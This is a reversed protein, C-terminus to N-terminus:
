PTPAFICKRARVDNLRRQSQLLVNLFPEKGGRQKRRDRKEGCERCLRSVQVCRSIFCRCVRVSTDWVSVYKLNMRRGDQRKQLFRNLM